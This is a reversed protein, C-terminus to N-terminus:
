FKSNYWNDKTKYLMWETLCLFLLLLYAFIHIYISSYICIYTNLHAHTCVWLVVKSLWLHCSLFLVIVHYLQCYCHELVFLLCNHRTFLTLSSPSLSTVPGSFSAPILNHFRSSYKLTNLNVWLVTLLWHLM